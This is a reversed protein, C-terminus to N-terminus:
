CRLHKGRCKMARMREGPRRGIKWDGNNSEKEREENWFGCSRVCACVCVCECDIEIKSLVNGCHFHILAFIHCCKRLM